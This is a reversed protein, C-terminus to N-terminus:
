ARYYEEPRIAGTGSIIGIQMTAHEYQNVKVNVVAPKGSAAARDLAPRIEAPGEVWEGHGGMAEMMKDYRTWGLFRKPGM